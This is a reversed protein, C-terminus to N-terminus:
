VWSVMGLWTLSCRWTEGSKRRSRSGGERHDGWSGKGVGGWAGVSRQTVVLTNAKELIKYWYSWVTHIRKKKRRENLMIIKLNTRITANLLCNVLKAASNYAMTHICSQQDMLKTPVSVTQLKWCNCTFNGHAGMPYTRTHVYAKIERPCIGQLPIIWHYSVCLKKLFSSFKGFPQAKKSEWWGHVPTFNNGVRM